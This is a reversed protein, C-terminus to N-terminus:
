YAKEGKLNNLVIRELIPEGRVDDFVWNRVILGKIRKASKLAISQDEYYLAKLELGKIKVLYGIRCPYKYHHCSVSAKDISGIIIEMNPDIGSVMQFMEGKSYNPKTEASNCSIFIVLFVFLFKM